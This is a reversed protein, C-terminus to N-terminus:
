RLGKSATATKDGNYQGRTAYSAETPVPNVRYFIMQGIKMGAELHLYHHRSANMLELTLVSGHWGPDCNHVFVGASIAFNHHEPVEMDYVPVPSEHHNHKVSSVVHNSYGVANVANEFSGFLENIRSISHMNQRKHKTYSEPTVPISKKTLVAITASVSGLCLRKKHEISNNKIWGHMSEHARNKKNIASQKKRNEPDSWRVANNQKAVISSQASKMKKYEPNQWFDRSKQSMNQRAIQRAEESKNWHIRHLKAHELACMIRINNPNNNTPNHDIHHAVLHKISKEHIMRGVQRHTFKWRAVPNRWNSQPKLRPCYVQQYGSQMRTKFPMLTDADPKLDKAAKYTGNRLMVQHDPTCTFSEGTDVTVTITETVERTKRINRAKAPVVDGDANIAYIWPDAGVLSEISQHSGDLLPIKTNGTFCWGALAHQLGARAASSKLKFEAAVNTPLNFVQETEALIFDGPALVIGNASINRQFMRPAAKKALYVVSHEVAVRECLVVPGLTVDISAGNVHGPDSNEIVGTEQLVVLENYSLLM